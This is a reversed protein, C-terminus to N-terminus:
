KLTRYFVDYDGNAKMPHSKLKDSYLKYINPNEFSVGCSFVWKGACGGLENLFSTDQSTKNLYDQCDHFCENYFEIVLWKYNEQRLINTHKLVLSDIRLWFAEESSEDYNTCFNEIGFSLVVEKGGEIKDITPCDKIVVNDLSCPYNDYIYNIIYAAGFISFVILIIKILFRM